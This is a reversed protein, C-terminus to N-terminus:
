CRSHVVGGGAIRSGAVTGAQRCTRTKQHRELHDLRKYAKMCGPWPCAHPQASSSMITHPPHLTCPSCPSPTIDNRPTRPPTPGVLTARGFESSCAPTASPPTLRVARPSHVLVAPGQVCARKPPRASRRGLPALMDALWGGTGRCRAGGVAHGEGQDTCPAAAAAPGIKRPRPPASRKAANASECRALCGLLGGSVMLM